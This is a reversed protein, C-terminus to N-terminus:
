RAELLPAVTSMVRELQTQAEALPWIFVQGIGAAEYGRLVDACEQASGILLQGRLTQVPRGVVAALAALHQEAEARDETVYTFTTALSCPFGEVTRGAKELAAALTARACVLQGPALNYASALWGDGLRAVRRMGADSGWSGIWIPPGGARGPQPRLEVDGDYFRGEFAPGHQLHARLFQVAEDLRAWRQEFDLGVATYDKASSGSGVGLTLRGGSLIDLAAAAKALNAPGRVAPLSVTTVLEMDGSHHVVSSLAVIGDLWPRQYTLHDNACLYRYGLDRAANAFSVLSSPEWGSGDFDIL